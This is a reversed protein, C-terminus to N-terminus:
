PSCPEFPVFVELQVSSFREIHEKTQKLSAIAPEPDLSSFLKLQTILEYAKILARRVWKWGIKLYSNGRFWHADVWRRKGTEVVETGQCVLFLTAVALVLCLRSLAESSRILSSELQFGSSKDDLFNEEIDFRLGYEDFTHLDTPQDSVILWDEKTGDPKALALHVPGFRKDTIYVHHWFRAQGRKLRISSVKCRRHGRRYTLFSSKIRIRWHWHRTESLYAMLHTDAFGRDALFVVECNSPLLKAAKDLLDRYSELGVTSSGHEITKWVLPVARGRYIISIRIHCFRDWLMSTDIGFLAHQREM